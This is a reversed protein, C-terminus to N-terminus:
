SSARKDIESLVSETDILDAIVTQLVRLIHKPANYVSEARFALELKAKANKIMAVMTLTSAFETDQEPVIWIIFKENHLTVKEPAEIVQFHEEFNDSQKKELESIRLLNLQNLLEINISQIGDLLGHVSKACDQYALDLQDPTM